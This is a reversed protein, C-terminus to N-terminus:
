RGPTENELSCPSSDYHSFLFNGRLTHGRIEEIICHAYMGEKFSDRTPIVVKKFNGTKGVWENEDRRSTKELLITEQRGLMLKARELTIENQLNIVRQLRTNKEEESISEKELAAPTGDRPSYAFMFASDFKAEQLLQLTEEFEEETEGPYGCIIDTTIGYIPNAARLTEVISLYNERTYQRKMKKLISNSGSQAPLHLHPAIKKEGLLIELLEGTCYKPHPSIFRIREVGKINAVQLLLGAFNLGKHRYGNVTQGLLTIESVGKSVAAAIERLISNPERYQECGRVYPVICYSCRMNCGSQIAIFASYSNALKAFEPLKSYEDPTLAFDIFPLDKLLSEGRNKAMCGLVGIKLNKNEIKLKKLDQMRTIANEEAKARISCTNVLIIDAKKASPAPVMGQLELLAAFRASDYENM